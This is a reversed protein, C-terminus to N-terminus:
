FATGLGLYIGKPISFGVRFVGKDNGFYRRYGMAIQPLYFRTTVYRWTGDPLLEVVERTKAFVIGISFEFFKHEKGKLVVFNPLAYVGTMDWTGNNMGYLPGEVALVGISLSPGFRLTAGKKRSLFLREYTLDGTFTFGMTAGSIYLANLKSLSDTQASASSVHLVMVVLILALAKM